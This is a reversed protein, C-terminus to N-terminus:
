EGKGAEIKEALAKQLLDEIEVITRIDQVAAGRTHISQMLMQTKHLAQFLPDDRDIAMTKEEVLTSAGDLRM